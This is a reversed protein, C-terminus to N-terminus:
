VLFRSIPVVFLAVSVCRLPCCGVVRAAFCTAFLSNESRRGEAYRPLDGDLQGAFTRIHPGTGGGGLLETKTEDANSPNREIEIVGMKRSRCDIPLMAVHPGRWFHSVMKKECIWQIDFRAGHSEGVVGVLVAAVDIISGSLAVAVLEEFLDLLRSGIRTSVYFVLGKIDLICHNPLSGAGLVLRDVLGGVCPIGCFLLNVLCNVIGM